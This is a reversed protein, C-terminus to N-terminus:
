MGTNLILSPAVAAEFVGLLVRVVVLSAFNKSACNMTVSGANRSENAYHILALLRWKGYSISLPLSM